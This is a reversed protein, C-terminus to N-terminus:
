AADGPHHDPAGAGPQDALGGGRGRDAHVQGAAVLPAGGILAAGVAGAAAIMWKAAARLDDISDLPSPLEGFPMGAVADAAQDPQPSDEPQATM